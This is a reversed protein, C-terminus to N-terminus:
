NNHNRLSFALFFLIAWAIVVILIADMLAQDGRTGKAGARVPGKPERTVNLRNPEDSETGMPM